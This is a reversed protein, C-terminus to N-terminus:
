VNLLENSTFINQDAMTTSIPQGELQGYRPSRPLTGLYYGGGRLDCTRVYHELPTPRIAIYSVVSRCHLFILNAAKCAGM